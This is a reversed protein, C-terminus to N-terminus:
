CGQRVGRRPCLAVLACASCRPRPRCTDKALRVIQAHYDNYLAAERPLRRMFFRQLEDYPENGRVLGLRSFVRRTYADIVFVPHGAAYLAISDATEPGIGDVALLMARLAEPSESAMAEVHGEFRSELFALFARVRRAKVNYTGSPRLLSALRSRSLARLAEFSLRDEARLRALAKQVNAWTTNQTLIAGLCIEFPTEGPWWGSHGYRQFLLRYVRLLGGRAAGGPRKTRVM